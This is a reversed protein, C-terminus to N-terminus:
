LPRPRRTRGRAGGATEHGALLELLADGGGEGEVGGALRAEVEDDCRVWQVAGVELAKKLSHLNGVGYDFLAVNMPAGQM